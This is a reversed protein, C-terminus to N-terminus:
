RIKGEAKATFIIIKREKAAAILPFPFAFHEESSWINGKWPASANKNQVRFRLAVVTAKGSIVRFFSITRGKRKFLM